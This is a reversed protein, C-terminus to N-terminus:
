AKVGKTGELLARDIEAKLKDKDILDWIVECVAWCWEPTSEEDTALKPARIGERELWEKKTM